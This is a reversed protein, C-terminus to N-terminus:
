VKDLTNTAVHAFRKADNELVAENDDPETASSSPKNNSGASAGLTRYHDVQKEIDNSYAM